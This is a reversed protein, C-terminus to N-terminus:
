LKNNEFEEKLKLYNEYRRKKMEEKSFNELQIRKEYEEDTELRNRYAYCTPDGDDDYSVTITDEPLLGYKEILDKVQFETPMNAICEITIKKKKM